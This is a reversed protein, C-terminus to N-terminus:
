KNPTLRGAYEVWRKADPTEITVVGEGLDEVIKCPTNMPVQGPIWCLWPWSASCPRQVSDAGREVSLTKPENM